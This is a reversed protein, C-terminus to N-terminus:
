FDRFISSLNDKDFLQNYELIWYKDLIGKEREKAESVFVFSKLDNSYYGQSTVIPIVEQAEELFKNYPPLEMNASELVYNSLYNISTEIEAMEETDYNTWVFFPVKYKLFEYNLDQTNNGFVNSYFGDELIGPQHDGFFCIVVPEEVNEFYHILYEVAQDTLQTLTLFEETKPYETSYNLDVSTKFDKHSYGGHNQMTVGFLFFNKSKDREEFKKIVYEFMEQDSVMSRVLNNQPYDEVFTVVDFGFSEYVSVRNWGSSSYPHTAYCEYNKQHLYSLLSYQEQSIYQQYPVADEPLFAMSNGTLFEFESNPTNGGYVSSYVYGKVTNKELNRTFPLLESKSEVRKQFANYDTFSEDMIVIISPLDEESDESNTVYKNEIENIAIESYGDPQSIYLAKTQLAFNFITGNFISGQNEWSRSNLNICGAFAIGATAVSVLLAYYRKNLRIHKIRLLLLLLCIWGVWSLIVILPISLDYEGAVNMATNFSQLDLLRLERGRLRFIYNDATSILMYPMTGIALSLTPNATLAYILFVTSSIIALGFIINLGPSFINHCVMAQTCMYCFFVTISFVSYYEKRADPIRSAILLVKPISYTGCLLQICTLMMLFVSSSIHFAHAIRAVIGSPIWTYYFCYAFVTTIVFGSFYCIIQLFRDPQVPQKHINDTKIYSLVAAIIALLFFCIIATYTPTSMFLITIALSFSFHINKKTKISNKEKM